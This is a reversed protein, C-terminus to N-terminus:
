ATILVGSCSGVEGDQITLHSQKRVAALQFRYELLLNIMVFRILTMPAPVM